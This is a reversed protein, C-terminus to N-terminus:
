SGVSVSDSLSGTDSTVYVVSSLTVADYPASPTSYGSVSNRESLRTSVSQAGLSISDPQPRRIGSCTTDISVTDPQPPELRNAPDTVQSPTRGGPPTSASDQDPVYTVWEGPTRRATGSMSSTSGESTLGAPRPQSGNPDQSASAGPTQPGGSGSSGGSGGHGSGESSVSPHHSGRSLQLESLSPNSSASQSARSLRRPSENTASSTPMAVAELNTNSLGSSNSHSSPLRRHSPVASLDTVNAPPPMNAPSPSIHVITVGSPGVSELSDTSFTDSERSTRSFRSHESVSVESASSMGRQHAQSGGPAAAAPTPAPPGPARRRPTVAAGAGRSQAQSTVATAQAGASQAGAQTGPVSTGPSVAIINAHGANPDSGVATSGNAVIQVNNTDRPAPTTTTFSEQSDTTDSTTPDQRAAAARVMNARLSAGSILAPPNPTYRPPRPGQTDTDSSSDSDRRTRLGGASSNRSITGAPSRRSRAHASPSRNDRQHRTRPNRSADSPAPSRRLSEQSASAQALNRRSTARPTSGDRPDGRVTNNASRNRHPSRRHNRPSRTGRATDLQGRSVLSAPIESRRSYRPAAVTQPRNQSTLMIVRARPMSGGQTLHSLQQPSITIESAMSEEYTPPDGPADSRSVIPGPVSSVVPASSPTSVPLARDTDQTSVEAAAEPQAWASSQEAGGHVAVSDEYTPPPEFGQPIIFIQTVEGATRDQHRRARSGRTRRRNSHNRSSTDDDDSPEREDESLDGESVAGDAGTEGGSSRRQLDNMNIVEQPSNRRSGGSTSPEEPKCCCCVAGCCANHEYKGQLDYTCCWGKYIAFAGVILIIGVGFLILILWILISRLSEQRDKIKRVSAVENTTSSPALSTSRSTTSSSTPARTSPPSPSPRYFFTTSRLTPTTTRLTSTSPPGVAAPAPLPNRGQQAPDNQTINNSPDSPIDLLGAGPEAPGSAPPGPNGDPPGPPGPGDSDSGIPVHKQQGVPGQVAPQREARPNETTQDGEGEGPMGPPTVYTPFSIPSPQGAGPKGPQDIERTRPKLTTSSPGPPGLPIRPPGTSRGPPGAGGLDPPPPVAPATTM